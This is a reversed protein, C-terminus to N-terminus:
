TREFVAQVMVLRQEEDNLKDANRIQTLLEEGMVLKQISNKPRLTNPPDKENSVDDWKLLRFGSAEIM